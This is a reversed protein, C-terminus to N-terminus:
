SLEEIAKDVLTVFTMVSSGGVLVAVMCAELMEQKTWGSDLCHQVAKPICVPCKNTVSSVLLLLWKTKGPLKGSKTLQEKQDIFAKYEAPITKRIDTMLANFEKLTKKPEYQM